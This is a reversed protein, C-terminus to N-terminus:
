PLRPVTRRQQSNRRPRNYGTRHLRNRKAPPRCSPHHPLQCSWRQQRRSAPRPWIGSASPPMAAQGFDRERTTLDQPHAELRARMRRLKLGTLLAGKKGAANAEGSEASKPNKVRALREGIVTGSWEDHFLKKTKRFRVIQRIFCFPLIWSVVTRKVNRLFARRFTIRNGDRDTIQIRMIIKGFTGCWRSSEMMPCIILHTVLSSLLLAFGFLLTLVEGEEDKVSFFFTGAALVLITLILVIGLNIVYDLLLTIGRKLIVFRYHKKRWDVSIPSGIEPAGGPAKSIGSIDFAKEETPLLRQETTSQATEQPTSPLLATRNEATESTFAPDPRPKAADTSSPQVGGSQVLQNLSDYIDDVVAVLADDRSNWFQKNNLPQYNRPLVQLEAYATKKWMCNRVLVPIMVTQKKYHRDFVPQTRVDLKNDDIFDSSILALVIDAEFLQKKHQEIEAGTRINFDSNLEIKAPFDRIIPRLHKSIAESVEEDESHSLLYVLVSKREADQIAAIESSM